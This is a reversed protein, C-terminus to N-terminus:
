RYRKPLKAVANSLANFVTINLIIKHAPGELKYDPSTLTQLVNIEGRDLKCWFDYPASMRALYRRKDFPANRIRASPAPEIERGLSVTGHDIMYSVAIDEGEASDYCRLAIEAKFRRSARKFSPDANLTAIVDNSFEESWYLPADSM